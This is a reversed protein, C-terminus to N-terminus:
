LSGLGELSLSAGAASDASSARVQSPFNQETLMRTYCHGIVNEVTIGHARDDASESMMADSM